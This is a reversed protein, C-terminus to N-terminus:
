RLTYLYATMDRAAERTVHLNPMATNSDVAPPDMIWRIMNEPSNPIVGALIKRSGVGTLPPGVM